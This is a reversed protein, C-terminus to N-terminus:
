YEFWDEEEAIKGVPIIQHAVIDMCKSEAAAVLFSPYHDPNRAIEQAIDYPDITNM